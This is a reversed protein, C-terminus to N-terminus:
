WKLALFQSVSQKTFLSPSYFDLDEIKLGLIFTLAWSQMLDDM